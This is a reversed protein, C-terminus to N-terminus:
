VINFWMFNNNIILSPYYSSFDIHLFNGKGNYKEIAGHLGGFAYIHPVGAINIKLKRSEIEKYDEGCKYDYECQKFFEAIEKPIIDWNINPDYDIYLRDNPLTIKKCKLVKSALVARTNQVCSVDLNFENVIEFKSQFYDIRKKFLM